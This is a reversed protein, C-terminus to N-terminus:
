CVLIECVEEIFKWQGLNDPQPLYLVSLIGLFWLHQPYQHCFCLMYKCVRGQSMLAMFCAVQHGLSCFKTNYM